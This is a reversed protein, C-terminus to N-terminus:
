KCVSQFHGFKDCNFCRKDKAKCNHFQSYEGSCRRCMQRRKKIRSHRYVHKLRIAKPRAARESYHTTVRQERWRHDAPLLRSKHTGMQAPKDETHCAANQLSTMQEKLENIATAVSGNDPQDYTSVEALIACKELDSLSKPNQMLVNPRLGEKLGNLIAYFTIKEPLDLYDCESKLRDMFNQVEEETQQKTSFIDSVKKYYLCESTSYRKFFAKQLEAFNDKQHDGLTQYWVYANDKLFLPFVSAPNVEPLLGCYAQFKTFFEIENEAGTFCVPDIAEM